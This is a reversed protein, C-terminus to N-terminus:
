LQCCFSNVKKILKKVQQRNRLQNNRKRRLKHEKLNRTTATQKKRPKKVEKLNPKQFIIEDDTGSSIEFTSFYKLPEPKATLSINSIVNEPLPKASLDNLDKEEDSLNVDLSSDLNYSLCTQYLISEEITEKFVIKCIVNLM